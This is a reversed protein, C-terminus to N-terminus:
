SARVNIQRPQAEKAKPLTVTLVGHKLSAEVQDPDIKAPLAFSRAFRYAAREKRHVSYGEPVNDRREGKLSLTKEDITLEVDNQSLGPVEARLVLAAGTDELQARPWLSSAEVDGEPLGREFDFLLRNMERRLEDLGDFSGASDRTGFRGFDNWRTLM